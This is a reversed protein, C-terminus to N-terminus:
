GRVLKNVNRARLAFYAGVGVAGVGVVSGAVIGAIAGGGLNNEDTKKDPDVVPKILGCTRVLQSTETDTGKCKNSSMAQEKSYFLPSCAADNIHEPLKDRIDNINEKLLTMAGPGQYVRPEVGLNFGGKGVCGLAGYKDIAKDCEHLIDGIKSNTSQSNDKTAESVVKSDTHPCVLTTSKVADTGLARNCSWYVPFETQNLTLYFKGKGGGAGNTEETTTAGTKPTRM